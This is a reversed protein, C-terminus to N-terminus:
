TRPRTDDAGSGRLGPVACTAHHSNPGVRRLCCHETPVPRPSVDDDHHFATGSELYGHPDMPRRGRSRTSHLHGGGAARLASGDHHHLGCAADLNHQGSHQCIWAQQHSTSRDVFGLRGSDAGPRGAPTATESTTTSTARPDAAAFTPCRVRSGQWLFRIRVAYRRDYIPPSNIPNM